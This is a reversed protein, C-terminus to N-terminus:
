RSGASTARSLFALFCAGALGLAALLVTPLVWPGIPEFLQGVLWPLIIGGLSFGVVFLGTVQGSVPLAEGALTIMNAVLPGIFFGFAATGTWAAAASSPWALLAAASALCGALGAVVLLRSALRRALLTGSLRGLALSLWFVSNLYFAKDADALGQRSAYTYIWGGFTGEAGVALFLFAV